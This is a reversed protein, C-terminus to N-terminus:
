FTRCTLASEASSLLPLFRPRCNRPFLRPLCRCLCRRVIFTGAPSTKTLRAANPTAKIDYRVPVLGTVGSGQQVIGAYATQSVTYSVFFRGDEVGFRPEPAKPNNPDGITGPHTFAFHYLDFQAEMMRGVGAQWVDGYNPITVFEPQDYEPMELPPFRPNPDLCVWILGYKEIANFSRIRWNPTPRGEIEMAPLCALSGDPCWQAGHYRCVVTDRDQDVWGVHLGTGRHPCTGDLAVVGTQLRALVLRQGLLEIPLPQQRGCEDTRAADLEASTAVPHYYPRWARLYSREGDLEGSTTPEERLQLAAVNM